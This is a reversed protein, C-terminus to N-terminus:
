FKFTFTFGGGGRRQFGQFPHGRQQQQQQQAENGVPEGRDYKARQEEDSLIEYAEAIDRFKKIAQEETLQEGDEDASEDDSENKRVKDPHYKLALKRYARKIERQSAGRDVGLIKYYNKSKSQQLATEAKQLRDRYEQNSGDLEVARKWERVSDEWEEQKELIMAKTAHAEAYGDDISLAEDVSSTAKKIKGLERFSQALSVLTEKRVDRNRPDINIMFELKEIAEEHNGEHKAADAQRKTRQLKRITRHGQFCGKHEPDFKLAEQFHVLAHDWDGHLYLARGRLELGQLSHRDLKLVRGTDSIAMEYDGMEISAAAHKLLTDLSNVARGPQLVQDLHERAEQYYGRNYYKNAEDLHHVCAEAEPLRCCM